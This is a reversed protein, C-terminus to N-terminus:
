PLPGAGIMLPLPSRKPQPWSDMGARTRYLMGSDSEHKLAGLAVQVEKMTQFRQDPSKAIACLM